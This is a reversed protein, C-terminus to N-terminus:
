SGLIAVFLNLLAILHIIYIAVMSIWYQPQNLKQTLQGIERKEDEDLEKGHLEKQVKYNEIRWGIADRFYTSMFVGVSYYIEVLLFIVVREFSTSAAVFVLIVVFIELLKRIVAWLISLTKAM